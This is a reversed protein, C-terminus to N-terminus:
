KSYWDDIAVQIEQAKDPTSLSKAMGSIEYELTDAQLAHGLAVNLAELAKDAWINALVATLKPDRDRIRLEWISIKRELDMRQQLQYIDMPYGDSRAEAIIQNKVQTSTMIDEASNFASDSQSQPLAWKNFEMTVTITATAEYVPPQFLHFIWGATGGLVTAIVIIWWRTLIREVSQRPSFEQKEM